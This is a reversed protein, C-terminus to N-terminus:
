VLLRTFSPFKNTFAFNGDHDYCNMVTTLKPKQNIEHQISADENAYIKKTPFCLMGVKTLYCIVILRSNRLVGCSSRLHHAIMQPQKGKQNSFTKLLFINQEYKWLGINSSSQTLLKRKQMIERRNNVKWKEVKLLPHYGFKKEDLQLQVLTALLLEQSNQHSIQTAQHCFLVVVKNQPSTFM